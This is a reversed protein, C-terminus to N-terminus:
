REKFHKHCYFNYEDGEKISTVPLEECGEVKCAFMFSDVARCRPCGSVFGGQIFPHPATLINERNVIFRCDRCIYKREQRMM